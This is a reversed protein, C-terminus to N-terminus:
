ASRESPSELFCTNCSTADAEVAKFTRAALWAGAAFTIIALAWISWPGTPLDVLGSRLNAVVGAEFRTPRFLKMLSAFFILLHLSLMLGMGGWYAAKRQWFRYRIRCFGFYITLLPWWSVGLFAIVLPLTSTGRRERWDPHDAALTLQGGRASISGDAHVVFYRDALQVPDVSVGYLSEVARSLQWGIFRKSSGLPTSYPKWLLPGNLVDDVGLMPLVKMPQTEGWPATVDASENGPLSEFMRLPVMIGYRDVENAFEIVEGRNVSWANLIAGGGYGIMLMLILPAQLLIFIRNRSVPYADLVRLGGAPFASASLIMYVAMPLFVLRMESGIGIADGGGGLLLGFFLLLPTMVVVLIMGRPTSRMAMHVLRLDLSWRWVQVPWVGDVAEGPGNAAIPTQSWALPIRRLLWSLLLVSVVVLTALVIGPHRLGQIVLVVAVVEALLEIFWGARHRSILAIGPVQGLYALTIPVAVALAMGMAGAFRAPEVIWRDLLLRLLGFMGGGLAVTVLWSGFMLMTAALLQSRWVDGASIPLTLEWCIAQRRFVAWGMPTITAFCAAVALYPLPDLDRSHMLLGVIGLCTSMITVSAIVPREM